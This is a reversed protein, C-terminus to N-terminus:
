GACRWSRPVYLACALLMTPRASCQTTYQVPFPNHIQDRVSLGSRKGGVSGQPETVNRRADQPGERGEPLGVCM